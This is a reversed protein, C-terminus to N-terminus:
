CTKPSADEDERTISVYTRQPALRDYRVEAIVSADAPPGLTLVRDAYGVSIRQTAPTAYADVGVATAGIVIPREAPWPAYLWRWVTGTADSDCPAHRAFVYSTRRVGITTGADPGVPRVDLGGTYVDVVVASATYTYRALLPGYSAMACGSLPAALLLWVVAALV